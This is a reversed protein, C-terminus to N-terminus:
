WERMEEQHAMWDRYGMITNGERVESIWTHYMILEADTKPWTPLAM